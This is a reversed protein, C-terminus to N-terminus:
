RTDGSPRDDDSRHGAHRWACAASTSRRDLRGRCDPCPLLDMVETLADHPRGDRLHGWAATVAPGEPLTPLVITLCAALKIEDPILADLLNM